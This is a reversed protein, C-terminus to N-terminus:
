SPEPRHGGQAEKIDLYRPGLKQGNKALASDYAAKKTFTVHAYGICRGSDQFTPLKVDSINAKEDEFFELLQDKTTDYPIGSCFLQTPRWAAEVPAVEKKEEPMLADMAADETEAKEKKEKKKEKTDITIDHKAKDSKSQEKRAKKKDKLKKAKKDKKALMDGKESHKGM